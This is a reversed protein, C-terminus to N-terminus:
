RTVFNGAKLPFRLSKLTNVLARFKGMDQIFHNCDVIGANM